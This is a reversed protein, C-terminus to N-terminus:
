LSDENISNSKLSSSLIRQFYSSKELLDQETLSKPYNYKVLLKINEIINM